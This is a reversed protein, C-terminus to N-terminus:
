NLMDPRVPMTIEAYGPSVKAIKMGLAKSATDRAYMAAAVREALVQADVETMAPHHEGVSSAEPRRVGRSSRRSGTATKETTPRCTRSRMGFSAPGSRM